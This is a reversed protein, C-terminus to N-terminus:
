PRATQRQKRASTNSPQKKKIHKVFYEKQSIIQPVFQGGKIRIEALKDPRDNTPQCLQYTHSAPHTAV